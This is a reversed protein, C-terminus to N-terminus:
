SAENSAPSDSSGLLGLKRSLLYGVVASAIFGIGASFAVIGLSSVSSSVDPHTRLAVIQLGLGIAAAVVGVQVSWLIRTLPAAVRPPPPPLQPALLGDILQKGGSEAYRLLDEHSTFRDLLKNHIEIQIRTMRSWRRHELVTRILWLLSAAVIIVVFLVSINEMMQRSARVAPPEPAEEGPVWIDDLYYSPNQAVEPHEKVFASLAPYAAMWTENRFLSPDLKLVVGVERPHRRLLDSFAMRTERSDYKTATSGEADISTSTTTTTTVTETQSTTADSTTTATEQAFLSSAILFTMLAMRFYRRFQEIM